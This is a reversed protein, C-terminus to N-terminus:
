WGYGGGGVINGGRITSVNPFTAPAATPAAVPATAPATQGMNQLYNDLVGQNIFNTGINALNQYLGTRANAQNIQSAYNASGIQNAADAGLGAVQASSTQGVNSTGAYRNMLAELRGLYGQYDQLALGQSYQIIDKQNAGTGSMGTAAARRNAADIGQQRLWDYGPSQKYGSPDMVASEYTGQMRELDALSRMGAERWPAMDERSQQYMKWQVKSMEDSAKKASKSQEKAGLFSAGASLLSGGVNAIADFLGV